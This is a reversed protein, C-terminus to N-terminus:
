PCEFTALSATDPLTPAFAMLAARMNQEQNPDILYFGVRGEYSSIRITTLEAMKCWSPDLAAEFMSPYLMAYVANHERMLDRVWGTQLGEQAWHKRATESGLGWLDLVYAENQYSPWGLDNVAVTEPFYETSFRHMQYQQDHINQAASPTLILAPLYVMAVTILGALTAIHKASAANPASLIPRWLVLVSALTFCLVYIEYRDFWDWKGAVMHGLAAMAVVVFFVRKSRNEPHILAIGSLVLGGWIILGRTHFTAAPIEGLAQLISAAFSRDITAASVESKMMVSSPLPPLGLSRMAVIYLAV